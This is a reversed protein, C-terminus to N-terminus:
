ETANYIRTWEEKTKELSLYASLLYKIIHSDINQKNINYNEKIYCILADVEYASLTLNIDM